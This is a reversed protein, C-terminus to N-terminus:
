GPAAPRPRLVWREARELLPQRRQSPLAWGIRASTELGARLTAIAADLGAEASPLGVEEMPAFIERRLRPAAMDPLFFADKVGGGLEDHDILAVLPAVRGGEKAVAIVLQQQDPADAPSTSWAGAPRAEVLGRVAELRPRAAPEAPLAGHPLVAALAIRAERGADGARGLADLLAPVDRPAVAGLVEEAMAEVLYSRSPGAVARAIREVGDEDGPAALGSRLRLFAAQADLDGAIDALCEAVEAAGPEACRALGAESWRRGSVEDGARIAIVAAEYWDEPDDAFAARLVDLAAEPRGARALTRALRRRAPAVREPLHRRLVDLLRGQVLAAEDPREEALLEQADAELAAVEEETLSAWATGRPGVWGLHVEYGAEALVQSLPRGAARLAGVDAAAVSAAVTALHTVPPAAWPREPAWRALREAVAGVLAAEDAARASLGDLRRVSVRRREADDLRVAIAEGAAVGAPLAVAPGLGIMALPALDPEVEVAGAAVAEATVVTALDLGALAGAVSALRGDAIQIIRPDDRTARRVAAAPDRAATVGGRALSAGLDAPAAPGDALLALVADAIRGM